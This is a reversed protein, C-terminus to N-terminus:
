VILHDIVQDVPLFVEKCKNSKEKFSCKKKKAEHIRTHHRKLSSEKKFSVDCFRESCTYKLKNSKAKESHYIRHHRAREGPTGFEIHCLDCTTPAPM